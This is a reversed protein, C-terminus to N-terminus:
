LLQIDFRESSKLFAITNKLVFSNQETNYRDSGYLLLNVLKDDSLHSIPPGIANTINDILTTRIPTYFPCLLLYHKTSEIELSCSCLHNLTDLFSNRFKHERLHSLNVRLRTLLKLGIPDHITYVSM